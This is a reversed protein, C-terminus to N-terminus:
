RVMEFSGSSVCGSPGTGKFTGQITTDSIANGTWRYQITQSGVVEETVFSVCVGDVAGDRFTFSEPLNTDNLTLSEAMPDHELSLAVSGLEFKDTNLFEQRCDKRNGEGVIEWTGTLMAEGACPDDPDFYDRYDELPVCGALALYALAVLSFSISQKM